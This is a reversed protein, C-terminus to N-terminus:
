LSVIYSATQATKAVSPMEIRAVVEANNVLADIRGAQDLVTRVCLRVSERDCVDLQVVETNGLAKNSGEPRRMTGLVRFGLESLLKAIAEGIGSTVGTALVANQANM